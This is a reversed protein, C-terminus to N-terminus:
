YISTGQNRSYVDADLSLRRDESLLHLGCIGIMAANDTCFEPRSLHVEIGQKEGQIVIQERLRRNAAVGGAIVVHRCDNERAARLTKATLVDVIAQEFSACIDPVPLIDYQADLKKVLQMLSTKLGSFSFDLPTDPLWARPLSFAEPDGNEGRKNIEPGGPYPLGLVKAAKDFAEGAADDRTKGLLTANTFGTVKYISTHGGSVVLGTFPFPPPNDELFISLLHGHIHNVGTIPIKLTYALAKAFSFGVVLSGVLGPGQTVAIAQLQNWEIGAQTMAERVVPAIAKMHERSAIEPVVGGYPRHKPIQSAVINSAIGRDTLIAAATEDCSSEIALLPYLLKEPCM